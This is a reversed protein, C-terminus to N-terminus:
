VPWNPCEYEAGYPVTWAHTWPPLLYTHVIHDRM